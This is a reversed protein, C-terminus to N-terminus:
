ATELKFAQWRRIMEDALESCEAPTLPTRIGELTAAGTKSIGIGGCKCFYVVRGSTLEISSEELREVERECKELWRAETIDDM